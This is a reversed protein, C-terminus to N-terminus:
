PLQYSTRAPDLRDNKSMLSCATRLTGHPPSLAAPSAPAPSRTTTRIGLGECKRSIPIGSMPGSKTLMPRRRTWDPTADSVWIAALSRGRPVCTVIKTDDSRPRPSAQWKFTTPLNVVNWFGSADAQFRPCGDQANTSIIADDASRSFTDPNQFAHVCFELM